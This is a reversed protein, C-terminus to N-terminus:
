KRGLAGFFEAGLVGGARSWFEYTWREVVLNTLFPAGARQAATLGATGFKSEVITVAGTFLNRFQWDWVPNRGGLAMEVQWGVGAGGAPVNGRLLNSLLSTAEGIDGKAQNSLQRLAGPLLKQGIAGGLAGAGGELLAQGPSFDSVPNDVLQRTVSSTLGGAAGVIAATGVGRILASAGGTLAGGAAAGLYTGVSSTEGRVLDIAVQVGVGILAGVVFNLFEGSPDNRLVPNNGSYAYWNMGGAFGIPDANVFRGLLANYFRARMHHLGNPDVTVGLGGIYLFPTDNTGTRATITGYPTYAIRDTVAGAANTLAITSGTQDFHYYTVEGTSEEVDYLLALEAYVSLVKTGNPRTRVLIRSLSGGHPDLAFATTQGAITLSVRRGEADYAYTVGGAGVLQNRANYAYTGTSGSPLPGSTMNGDLDHVVPNGAWTALRNDADFTMASMPELSPAAPVPLDFRSTIRGGLDYQLRYFSHLEEAPTREEVKLVQGALDYTVDRTSGNPRTVRALYGDARHTFTTTRGAWDTVTDLRNHADYTYTVTRTPAGPYTLSKLLGNAYYHYTTTNGAADTFTKVRGHPDYTRTLTAAGETVTLPQGNANYTTTITGVPDTSTEVRDAADYALTTTEGSPEAVTTLLNRDNYTRSFTRGLPTVLNKPLGNEWFTFTTAHSLRDTLKTRDGWANLTNTYTNSRGDTMGTAQSRANFATSTTRPTGAALLDTKATPNGDADFVTTVTRGIPDTVSEIRAADDFGFTSTQGALPGTTTAPLDRRDYTHTATDIVDGAVLAPSALNGNFLGTQVQAIAGTATYTRRTARDTPDIQLLLRGADDYFNRSVASAYDPADGPATTTLPQRRTNYTFTSTFGRRDTHSLMDGRASFVFSETEVGGGRKPTDVQALQGTSDYAYTTVRNGASSLLTMTAVKGAAPDGAPKYTYDVRTGRADIRADPRGTTNGPLYLLQTQRDITDGDPVAPNPFAPDIFETRIPRQLSDFYNRTKAGLPDVVEVLNFAADYKYTTTFGRASTATVLHDQGDYAAATRNGEGDQRGVARGRRDYFFVTRQGLPAVETNRFGSFHLTFERDALGQNRQWDVRGAYDYHNQVITRGLPDRTETILRDTCVYNWTKGETDTVGTLNGAGDAALYTVTRAPAGNDSVSALRAGSYNFTLQRGYADTVTSVRGSAYALNMVKGDIDTITTCRLGQAAAFRYTAGLREQVLFDGGAEQTLSLTSQAPPEYTGDPRRIFQVSSEGLSVAVANRTTRDVAWGSILAAVAWDKATAASTFLDGVAYAAVIMPAADFPTTEGFAADPASRITARMDYNHTWGWGLGVLNADRRHSNYSRHLALGRPAAEGLALDTSRLTFGGSGMDVPDLGFMGPVNFSPNASALGLFSGDSSFYAPYNQGDITIYGTLVGPTTSFGGALGGSIIMGVSFESAQVYGTGTWSNLTNNANEPLFYTYGFNLVADQMANLFSTGYNRLLPRVTAVTSANVLFLEDRLPDSVSANALTLIKITSAGAPTTQLQELVGHEFASAFFNTTKFVNQQKGLSGDRSFILAFNQGLDVYYGGPSGDPKQEQAVRGFGHSTLGEVGGVDGLLRRALSSHHLWNLGILNLTETVARRRLAADPISNLVLNGGEYQLGAMTSAERLYGDLIRQRVHVHQGNPTFGYILAFATNTGKNYNLTLDDDAYGGPYTLATRLPVSTGPVAATTLVEDDLYVTATSGSFALSLRKGGLDSIFRTVAAGGGGPNFQVTIQARVADPIAALTTTAGSVSFALATPLTAGAVPVIVRRGLVEDVSRHPNASARLSASFQAARAALHTGMATTNIGKVGYTGTVTGGVDTLLAARNYGMATPLDVPTAAPNAHKFSPDLVYTTGGIVVSLWVREILLDRGFTLSNGSGPWGRNATLLQAALLQKKQLDTWPLGSYPDGGYGWSSWADTWTMGAFADSALGLWPAANADYPIIQMGRKYSPTLGCAKLLAALLACQDYDNGSRELLTIVAGKKSGYYHEYAVNNRVHQYCLVPDFLLGRALAAVEPDAPDDPIASTADAPTDPTFVIDAAAPAAAVPRLQEIPPPRHSNRWQPQASAAASVAALVFLASLLRLHQM